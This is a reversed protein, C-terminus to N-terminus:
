VTSSKSLMKRKLWKWSGGRLYPGCPRKRLLAKRELARDIEAPPVEAEKTLSHALVAINRGPFFYLVRYNVRGSKARLEHIGDRLYDAEPRRLGHGEEALRRIRVVCKAYAKRDDQRLKRLWDLVPVWGKDRYFLVTAVPV